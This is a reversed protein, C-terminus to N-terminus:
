YNAVFTYNGAAMGNFAPAWMGNQLFQTGLSTTTGDPNNRVLVVQGTPVGTAPPVPAVAITLIFDSGTTCVRVSPTLTTTTLAPGGSTTVTLTTTNNSAGNFNADGGYAYTIPYPTTSAPIAHIDFSTSFAGNSGIAATTSAGNITISVSGTPFLRGAAIQGSLGISATGFTISQSG